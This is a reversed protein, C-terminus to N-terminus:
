VCLTYLRYPFNMFCKLDILTELSCKYGWNIIHLECSIKILRLSVDSNSVNTNKIIKYYKYNKRLMRFIILYCDTCINNILCIRFHLLFSSSVFKLIDSLLNNSISAPTSIFFFVMQFWTDKGHIATNYIIRGGWRTNDVIYYPVDATYECKILYYVIIFDYIWSQHLKYLLWM